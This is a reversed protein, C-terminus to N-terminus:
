TTMSIVLGSTMEKVWASEGAPEAAKIEVGIACHVAEVHSCDGKRSPCPCCLFTGRREVLYKGTGGVVEYREHGMRTVNGAEHLRKGKDKTSETAM